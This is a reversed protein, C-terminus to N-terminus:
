YSLRPSFDDCSSLEWDLYRCSRENSKYVGRHCAAESNLIATIITFSYCWEGFGLGLRLLSLTRGGLIMPVMRKGAELAVERMVLALSPWFYRQGHRGAWCLGNCCSSCISESALWSSPPVCAVKQLRAICREGHRILGTILCNQSEGHSAMRSM